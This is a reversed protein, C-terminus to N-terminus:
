VRLQAGSWLFTSQPSRVGLEDSPRSPLLVDDRIIEQAAEVTTQPTPSLLPSDMDFEALVPSFLHCALSNCLTPQCPQSHFCKLQDFKILVQNSFIHILDWGM